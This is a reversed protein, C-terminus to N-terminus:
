GMGGRVDWAVALMLGASGILVTPTTWEEFAGLPCRKPPMDKIDQPWDLVVVDADGVTSPDWTTRDVSRVSAFRERLFAEFARGRDTDPSGAYIVDLALTGPQTGPQTGSQAPMPTALVGVLVLSSFLSRM